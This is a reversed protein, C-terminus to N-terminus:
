NEIPKIEKIVPQYNEWTHYNTRVQMKHCRVCKRQYYLPRRWDHGFMLCILKILTSKM